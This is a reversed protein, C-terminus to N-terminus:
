AGGKAPKIHHASGNKTDIQKETDSDSSSM